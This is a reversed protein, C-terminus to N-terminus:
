NAKKPETAPKAEAKAGGNCSAKQDSAKACNKGEAKAGDKCCAKGGHAGQACCAPKAEEKKAEGGAFSNMAFATFCAFSLIAVIKKM